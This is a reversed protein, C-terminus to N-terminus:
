DIVISITSPSALHGEFLIQDTAVRVGFSPSVFGLGSAVEGRIIRPRTQGDSVIQMKMNQPGSLAVSNATVIAARCDPNILFSMCAPQAITPGVLTDTITVTECDVIGITRRHVVGFRAAYGDHEAIIQPHPDATASILRTNAKSAWNFPGASKSAPARGLTLTNHLLSERFLRRLVPDSHYLYTGADVIVPQERVTLWLSLADAHGHAGISLYGVPGHDVILVMRRPAPGRVVTYGGDVWTRMGEPARACQDPSRFLLDRLHTDRAPPAIEPRDLYGSVAAVISAVYRPEPEQTLAIVRCDDCDGIAPLQGNADMMWRAHDAWAGLRLRVTEPLSEAPREAILLSLLALEITFASYGPAQEAGVGDALLQRTLEGILATVSRRRIGDADSLDPAFKTAVILGALEAIRHNNASSYLSPYRAMWFLHAAFFRHLHAKELADLHDIGIVSFAIAVSIARLALEIPSMWNVGRYPRNGEIWSFLIASVLDRAIGDRRSAAYVAVPILFQLRNIEWIRKVEPVDLGHRISVDFCYADRDLVIADAEPDIHWFDASPPMRHEPWTAGLLHYRGATVSAVEREVMAILNPDTPRMREAIATIPALRGDPFGNWGRDVLRGTQRRGAEFARHVMERTSMVALRDVYWAVRKCLM